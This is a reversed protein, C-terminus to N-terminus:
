GNMRAGCVPCYDQDEIFARIETYVTEQTNEFPTIRKEKSLDLDDCIRGALDWLGGAGNEDLDSNCVVCEKDDFNRRKVPEATSHCEIYDIIGDIDIYKRM